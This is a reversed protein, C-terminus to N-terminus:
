LINSTGVQLICCDKDRVLFSVGIVAAPDATNQHIAENTQVDSRCRIASESLIGGQDGAATLM